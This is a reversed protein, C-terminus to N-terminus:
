LLLPVQGAARNRAEYAGRLQLLPEYDELIETHEDIEAM